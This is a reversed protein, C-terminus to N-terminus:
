AFFIAGHVIAAAWTMITRIRTFNQTRILIGMRTGTRIVTPEAPIRAARTTSM